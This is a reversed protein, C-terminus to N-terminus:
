AFLFCVTYEDPAEVKMPIGRHLFHPHPGSPNVDTDIQEGEWWYLIDASTFPHGDSWKMGKRLKVTFIRQDESISYSKAVNPVIPYGQPSWRLLSVPTMRSGGLDKLRYMLGGYRGEGEVGRLVLPEEGVRDWVPPLMGGEVLKKLVPAEEKPYWAGSKGASYDVEVQIRMPNEPDVDQKRLEQLEAMEKEDPVIAKTELRSSFMIACLLLVLCIAVAGILSYRLVGWAVNMKRM